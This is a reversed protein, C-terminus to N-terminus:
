SSCGAPRTTSASATTGDGTWDGVLPVMTSNAPGFTFVNDAFGGTNSNSLFFTSTAPNYLGITDTGDGNWDGTLPIYGGNAAGFVIVNQAFGSGATDQLLFTSDTPNYLGVTSTGGSALYAFLDASSTASTGNSTTVTVDVTGAANAPATVVIQTDSISQIAAAFNGFKM